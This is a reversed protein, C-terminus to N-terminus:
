KFKIISRSAIQRRVSLWDLYTPSAASAQNIDAIATAYDGLNSAAFARVVRADLSTADIALAQEALRRAATYNGLNIYAQGALTLAQLNRPQAKLASQAAVLAPAPQGLQLYMLALWDGAAAVRATSTAAKQLIKAQSLMMAAVQPNARNPYEAQLQALTRDYTTQPPTPTAPLNVAIPARTDADHRAVMVAGILALIAVGVTIGYRAQYRRWRRKKV